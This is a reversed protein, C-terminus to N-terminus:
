AFVGRMFVIIAEASDQLWGLLGRTVGASQTPESIMYFLVLAMGALLAVKKMKM